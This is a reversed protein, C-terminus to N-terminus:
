PYQLLTIAFRTKLVAAQLFLLTGTTSIIFNFISDKVNVCNKTGLLGYRKGNIVLYNSRVKGNNYFYKAGKKM